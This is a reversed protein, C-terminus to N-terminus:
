LAESGLMAVHVDSCDSCRAEVNVLDEAAFSGASTKDVPVNESNTNRFKTPFGKTAHRKLFATFVGHDSHAPM